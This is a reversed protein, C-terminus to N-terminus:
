FFKSVKNKLFDHSNQQLSAIYYVVFTKPFLIETSGYWACTPKLLPIALDDSQQQFSVQLTTEFTNITTQQDQLQRFFYKSSKEM